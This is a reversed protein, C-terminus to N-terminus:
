DLNSLPPNEDENDHESTSVLTPTSDFPSFISPSLLHTFYPDYSLYPVFM